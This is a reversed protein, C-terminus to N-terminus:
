NSSGSGMYLWIRYSEVMTTVTFYSTSDPFVELTHQLFVKVCNNSFLLIVKHWTYYITLVLLNFQGTAEGHMNHYSQAKVWMALDIYVFACWLHCVCGYGYINEFVLYMHNLFFLELINVIIFILQVYSLSSNCYFDSLM